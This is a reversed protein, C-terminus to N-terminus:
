LYGRIPADHALIASQICFEWAARFALGLVQTLFPVGDLV